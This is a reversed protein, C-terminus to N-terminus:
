NINILSLFSLLSLHSLLFSPFCPIYIYIPTLIWLVTSGYCRSSDRDHCASYMGQTLLVETNQCRARKHPIYDLPTTHRKEKMIGSFVWLGQTRISTPPTKHGRCRHHVSGWRPNRNVYSGFSTAFYSWALPQLTLYPM